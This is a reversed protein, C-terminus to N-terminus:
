LRWGIGWSIEDSIQLYFTRLTFTAFLKDSIYYKFGAKQYFSSISPYPSYIHYGVQTLLGVRDIFLEHGASIGVKKFDDGKNASNEIDHKVGTNLFVDVGINLASVRALKKDAYLYFTLLPYKRENEPTLQKTGGAINVNFRVRKNDLPKEPQKDYSTIGDGTIYGVALQLMWLNMGDNPQSIAGNSFHTITTSINFSLHKVSRISLGFGLQESFNFHQSVANNYREKMNSGPEYIENAFMIGQSGKVYFEFNNTRWFVYSLYRSLALTSGLIKNRHDVWTLSWGTHPYNFLKEWYKSGDRHRHFFIEAGVPYTSGFDRDTARNVNTGSLYSGGITYVKTQQARLTTFCIVWLYVLFIASKNKLIYM